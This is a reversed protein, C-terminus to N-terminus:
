TSSFLADQNEWSPHNCGSISDLSYTEMFLRSVWAGQSSMTVHANEGIIYDMFIFHTMILM